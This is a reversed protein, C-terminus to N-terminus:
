NVTLKRQAVIKGWRALEDNIQGVFADPANGVATM